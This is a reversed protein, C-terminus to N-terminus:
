YAGWCYSWEHPSGPTSMIGIRAPNCLGSSQEGELAAHSIRGAEPVSAIETRAEAKRWPFGARAEGSPRRLRHLRLTQLRKGRLRREFSPSVAEELRMFHFSGHQGRVSATVLPLVVFAVQCLDM